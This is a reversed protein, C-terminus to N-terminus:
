PHGGTTPPAASSAASRPAASAPVARPDEEAERGALAPSNAASGGGSRAASVGVAPEPDMVVTTTPAAGSEAPVQARVVVPVPDSEDFLEARGVGPSSVPAPMPPLVPPIDPLVHALATGLANCAAVVPTGIVAVRGARDALLTRVYGRGPGRLLIRVAAAGTPPETLEPPLPDPLETAVLFAPIGFLPPTDTACRYAARVPESPFGPHVGEAVIVRGGPLRADMQAAIAQFLGSRVVAEGEVCVMPPGVAMDLFVCGHDAVGLAVVIPRAGDTDPTVAPIEELRATWAGPQAGSARWIGQPSTAAAGALFVTVTSQTVVAAYPRAPAAAFRAAVLAREAYRWTDPRRLGQILTQTSRRYRRWALLPAVFAYTTLAVERCLRRWAARWGGFRMAVVRLLLFVALAGAAIGVCRFIVDRHDHFFKFPDATGM